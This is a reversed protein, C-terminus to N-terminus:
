RSKADKELLKALQAVAGPPFEPTYIHFDRRGRFLEEAEENALDDLLAQALKRKEDKPLERAASIIEAISM